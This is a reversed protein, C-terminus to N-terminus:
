CVHPCAWMRVQKMFKINNTSLHTKIKWKGVGLVFLMFFFLVSFVQPIFEFKAIANPYSVFALGSGGEVVSQIDTSGTEYAM